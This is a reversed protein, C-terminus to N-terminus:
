YRGFAQAFPYGSGPMKEVLRKGFVLPVLKGIKGPGVPAPKDGIQFGTHTGMFKPGQKGKKVRVEVTIEVAM